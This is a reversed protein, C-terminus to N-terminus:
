TRSRVKDDPRLIDIEKERFLELVVKDLDSFRAATRNALERRMADVSIPEESTLSFLKQPMDNLLQEQMQREDLERFNFLPPTESNKLSDWGLMRFDGHGYHEFTNSIDWHRQIMVDRATPHTSLHLFWLARHSIRPRIFFPTDYAAGTVTRIHDRLTRQVLARGGVGEKDAILNRIQSSTLQLPAVATIFEPTAAIHNILADAAFTLIVEAAPLERFIRAVLALEVQSFGTQDLLFISRGARPQRRRVETIIADAADEFRSNRVVIEGGDGKYGREMLIKKLHDTHAAEIDTFYYKCDLRLSKARKRNLRARANRTEELMILPTGSVIEDGDQFIGGGAFGDILDLKFEDRAPNINLRDFYARLYSRLVTLKAKSHEELSPPPEDPHWRFKMPTRGKPYIPTASHEVGDLLRGGAKPTRGGWQKFFFPIGAQECRDRVDIAWESRMPRAKPGSEGGVIVWAIGTLDLDGIPGLLPEISLFRTPIPTQQLHRVRATAMHDEVSVGCWIHQPAPRAGYRRCLYNRMRSSRKTLLQFIHQEATEMTDFVQDIFEEPVQRHFLDSMSNVFIMRPRKWALPQLLREPRLTVDFGQEFPHGPVGRFRESFREAYCHDCGRTIKTCGTVPNWTADTWEIASKDGM